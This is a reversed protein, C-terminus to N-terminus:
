TLEPLFQREFDPEQPLSLEAFEFCQAIHLGADNGRDNISLAPYLAPTGLARVLDAFITIRLM